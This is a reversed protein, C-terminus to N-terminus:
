CNKKLRRCHPMRALARRSMLYGSESWTAASGEGHVYLADDSIWGVRCGNQEPSDDYAPYALANSWTESLSGCACPVSPSQEHERAAEFQDQLMHETNKVATNVNDRNEVIKSLAESIVTMANEGAALPRRSKYTILFPLATVYTDQWSHWHLLVRVSPPARGM